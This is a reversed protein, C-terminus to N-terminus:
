ELLYENLHDRLTGHVLTFPEATIVTPLGSLYRADDPSLNSATWEIAAKAAYNFDEASAKGVAAYHHNGAVSVMEHQRLLKVCQGPDPGYGVIDGLCCLRDFGGCKIADEIVATLAKLNSHVDSLILTRLLSVECRETCEHNYLSRHNDGRNLVTSHNGIARQNAVIPPSLACKLLM